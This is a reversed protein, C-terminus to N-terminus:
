YAGIYEMKNLPSSLTLLCKPFCFTARTTQLVCFPQGSVTLNLLKAISFVEGEQWDDIKKTFHLLFIGLKIDRKAFDHQSDSHESAV